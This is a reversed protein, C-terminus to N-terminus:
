RIRSGGRPPMQGIPPVQDIKDRQRQMAQAQAMVSNIDVKGNPQKVGRPPQPTKPQNIRKKGFPSWNEKPEWRQGPKVSSLSSSIQSEEEDEPESETEYEEDDLDEINTVPIDEDSEDEDIEEIPPKRKVSHRIPLKRERHRIPRKPPLAPKHKKPVQREFIPEEPLRTQPMAPLGTNTSIPRHKTVITEVWNIATHGEYKEVVGTPFLLLITPVVTIPIKTNTLIFGRVNENDTCLLKLGYLASFDVSSKQILEMIRKSLPSYKSYILITGTITAM